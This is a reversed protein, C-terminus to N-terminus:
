KQKLSIDTEIKNLLQESNQNIDQLPSYDSIIFLWVKHIREVDFM